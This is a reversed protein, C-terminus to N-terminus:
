YPLRTPYMRELSSAVENGISNADNGYINFHNTVTTTSNYTKGGSFIGSFMGSNSFLNRLLGESGFLPNKKFVQKAFSGIASSVKGFDNNWYDSFSKKGTIVEGFNKFDDIVAKVVDLASAITDLFDAVEGLANRVGDLPSLDGFIDNWIHDLLDSVPKIAEKLDNFSKELNSFAEDFESWNLASDGGRKWTMYDDILLLLMVLAGIFMNIPSALLAKSLIAVLFITRSIQSDFLDVVNIIVKGLTTILKIAAKGLRYFIEFFKAVTRTIPQINKIIFDGLNRPKKTFSEVDKGTFMSIWYTVWRTGYQFIMKLRNVEFNLARVQQLYTDLEKPAELTRGLNNLEVLERYEEATMYMIDEKTKGLAKLASNFSRANQETTWYERALRETDRDLKATTEVINLLSENVAILASAVAGGAKIFSSAIGAAKGTLKAAVSNVIGLSKEFGEKDVDWGIEVLYKKMTEAAAM